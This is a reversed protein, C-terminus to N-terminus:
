FRTESDTPRLHSKLNQIKLLSTASELAVPGPVVSPTALSWYEQCHGMGM